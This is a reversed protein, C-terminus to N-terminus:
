KGDAHDVLMRAIDDKLARAPGFFEEASWQLRNAMISFIMVPRAKKDLIYGTLCSAGGVTGTKGLIRGRYAPDQFRNQEQLTGDIGSIPLSEVILKGDKRKLVKGLLRVFERPAVRNKHSLGSGELITFGGTDLGYHKVIGKALVKRSGEWTGDGTRLFHCQAAMNLSRKNMRKLSDSLPTAKRYILKAGSLDFDHPVTRIKGDFSVGSRVIRDALVRGLFMAPDNVSLIKPKSTSRVVTGSLTVKSEGEAATLTWADRKGPKLENVVEIFRSAPQLQAAVNGDAVTLTVNYNNDHFNLGGVPAQYWLHHQRKMVEPHRSQKIKFRSCLLLDGTFSSSAKKKIAASWRDLEAYVSVGAKASLDACGLTPDGDGVIVIDKGLQYVDTTFKFDAGLRALALSGTLLKTNSATIYTKESDIDILVEDVRLDTVYIGCVLNANKQYEAVRRAVEKRLASTRADASAEALVAQPALSLLVVVPLAARLRLASRRDPKSYDPM